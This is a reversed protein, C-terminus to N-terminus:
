LMAQSPGQAKPQTIISSYRNLKGPETSQTSSLRSGTTSLFARQVGRKGATRTVSSLQQIARLM